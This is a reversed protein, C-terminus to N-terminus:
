PQVKISAIEFEGDHTHAEMEFGGSIDATFDFLVPKTGNTEEEIDYGHLHIEEVGAEPIVSIRVRDGEQYNLEAVGGAPAGNAIKIVEVSPKATTTAADTATTSGGDDGGGEDDGGSLVIFLM